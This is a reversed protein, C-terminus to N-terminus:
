ESSREKYKDEYERLRRVTEEFFEQMNNVKCGLRTLGIDHIITVVVLIIVIYKM